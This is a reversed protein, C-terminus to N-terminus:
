EYMWVQNDKSKCAVLRPRQWWQFYWQYDLGYERDPIYVGIGSRSKHRSYKWQLM